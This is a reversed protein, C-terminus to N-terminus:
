CFSFRYFVNFTSRAIQLKEDKFGKGIMHKNYSLALTGIEAAFCLPYSMVYTLSNKSAPVGEIKLM